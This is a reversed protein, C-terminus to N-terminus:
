RLQHSVSDRDERIAEFITPMYHCAMVQSIFEQKLMSKTLELCSYVMYLCGFSYFNFWVNCRTNLKHTGYTGSGGSRSSTRTEFVRWSTTLRTESDIAKDLSESSM